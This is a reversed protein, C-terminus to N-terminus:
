SSSESTFIILICLSNVCINYKFHAPNANIKNKSESAAIRIGLNILKEPEIRIGLEEELERVGDLPTEGAHLHGAATIDLMNPATKKRKDRKQAVVYVKGERKKIIWGQFTQHWYGKKHVEERDATGILNMSSDFIDLIESM